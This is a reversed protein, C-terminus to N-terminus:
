KIGYSALEADIQENTLDDIDDDVGYGGMANGIMPEFDGSLGSLSQRQGVGFPLPKNPDVGLRKSLRAKVLRTHRQIREQSKKLEGADMHHAIRRWYLDVVQELQASPLDLELCIGKCTTLLDVVEARAKSEQEPTSEAIYPFPRRLRPM